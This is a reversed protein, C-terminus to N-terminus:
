SAMVEDKVVSAFALVDVAVIPLYRNIALRLLKVVVTHHHVKCEDLIFDM